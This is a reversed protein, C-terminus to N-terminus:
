STSGPERRPSACPCDETDRQARQPLLASRRTTEEISRIEVKSTREMTLAARPPACSRCISCAPQVVWDRALTPVSPARMEAGDYRVVPPDRAVTGDLPTPASTSPPTYRAGNKPIVRRVSGPM